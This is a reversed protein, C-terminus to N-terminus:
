QVKTTTAAHPADPRDAFAPPINPTQKPTKSPMLDIPATLQTGISEWEGALYIAELAVDSRELIYDEPKPFDETFNWWFPLKNGLQDQIYGDETPTGGEAEILDMIAVDREDDLIVRTGLRVQAHSRIAIRGDPQQNGVIAHIFQDAKSGVQHGTSARILTGDSQMIAGDTRLIDIIPVHQGKFEGEGCLTAHGPTIGIGWFDLIHTANNIFTRTVTGPQLNGNNNYSVVLDRVSVESIPKEWVKSLVLEEDYRGDACPKISPDLPWMRILTDALFCHDTQYPTGFGTAIYLGNQIVAYNTQAIWELLDQRSAFTAGPNRALGELAGNLFFMEPLLNADMMREMVHDAATSPNDFGFAQYNEIYYEIPETATWNEIGLGYKIDSFVAKHNEYHTVASLEGVYGQDNVVFERARLDAVMLDYSIELSTNLNIANGSQAATQAMFSNAIRGSFSDERVVGGALKGYQYGREDLYSYYADRNGVGEEYSSGVLSNLHDIDQKTLNQAM